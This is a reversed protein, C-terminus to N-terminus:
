KDDNSHKRTLMDAVANGLATIAADIAVNAAAAKEAETIEISATTKLKNEDQRTKTLWATHAEIRNLKDLIHGLLTNLADNTM